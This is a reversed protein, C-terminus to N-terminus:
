IKKRKTLIYDIAPPSVGQQRFITLIQARHHIAHYNIQLVIDLLTCAFKEGTPGLFSVPTNLDDEPLPRLFILWKETIQQWLSQCEKLSYDPGNWLLSEDPVEPRIRNLWKRECHILHSILRVPAAHDALSPISDILKRTAFDNFQFFEILYDKM